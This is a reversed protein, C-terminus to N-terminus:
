LLSLVISEVEGLRDKISLIEEHTLGGKKDLRASVFMGESIVDGFQRPPLFSVVANGGAKFEQSNTVIEMKFGCDFSCLWLNDAIQVSSVIEGSFYRIAEYAKEIEGRKLLEPLHALYELWYKSNLQHFDREAKLVVELVSKATESIKVVSELEALEEFPMYSYKVIQVESKLGSIARILEKRRQVKVNNLSKELEEVGKEALRIRFDSATDM